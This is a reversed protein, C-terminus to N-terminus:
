HQHYRPDDPYLVTRRGQADHIVKPQTRGVRRTRLAELAAETSDYASLEELTRRTPEMLYIAGERALTLAEQPTMWRHGVLEGRDIEVRAAAPAAALFFRTDYRIPLGEPTVWHAFYVLAEGAPRLGLGGLVGQLGGIGAVLAERGDALAPHVGTHTHWPSGDAQRALLVATEEFTERIAAVYHAVAEAGDRVGHLRERAQAATLGIGAEDEAWAADEAELAGGPFVCAGAGFSAKRPREVLLVEPAGGTRERDRMLVLTSAPRPAVSM